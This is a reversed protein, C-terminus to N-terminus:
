GDRALYRSVMDVLADVLADRAIRRGGLIARHVLAEVAHVV